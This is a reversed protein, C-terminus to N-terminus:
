ATASKLKVNFLTRGIFPDLGAFLRVRLSFGTTCIVQMSIFHSLWVCFFFNKWLPFKHAKHSNNPNINTMADFIAEGCSHVINSIFSDDEERRWLTCVSQFFSHASAMCAAGVWLAIVHGKRWFLNLQGRVTPGGYQLMVIHSEACFRLCQRNRCVGMHRSSQWIMRKPWWISAGSVWVCLRVGWVSKRGERRGRQSIVGSQIM